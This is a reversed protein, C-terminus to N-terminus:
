DPVGRLSAVATTIRDFRGQVYAIIEKRHALVRSDIFHWSAAAFLLSIALSVSFNLWAIRYHPFAYSITQQVPFGYLYVGYSYDGTANIVTKPFNTLGLYVTLYAIPITALYQLNGNWLFAYGAIASICFLPFNLPIYDRYSYITVGALFALVLTEKSVNGSGDSWNTPMHVRLLMLLLLGFVAVATLVLMARKNSALGFIGALLFTLYCLLEAPITWLQANVTAPWPNNLFVGPLYYHIDGIINLPYSFFESNTFYARLPFETVLPGLIFAALITEVCLAPVIRLGRLMIFELVTKSRMLSGAVLFGSLAFFSPVIMWLIPQRFPPYSHAADTATSVVHHTIAHVVATSHILIVGCALIIRLYDFGTTRGKTDTM